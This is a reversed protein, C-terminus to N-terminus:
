LTILARLFIFLTHSLSLLQPLCPPSSAAALAPLQSFTAVSSLSFPSPSGASHSSLSLMGYLPGLVHLPGSTTHDKSTKFAHFPDEVLHARLSPLM